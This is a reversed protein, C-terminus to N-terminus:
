FVGKTTLNLVGDQKQMWVSRSKDQRDLQQFMCEAWNAYLEPLLCSLWTLYAKLIVFCDLLINSWYDLYKKEKPDLLMDCDQLM